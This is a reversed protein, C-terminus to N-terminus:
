PTEILRLIEAYLRLIEAYVKEAQEPQDIFASWTVTFPNNRAMMANYAESSMIEYHYTEVAGIGVVGVRLSKRVIWM